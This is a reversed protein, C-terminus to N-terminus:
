QLLLLTGVEQQTITLVQDGVSLTATDSTTSDVGASTVICYYGNGTMSNQATLTLVTGTEGILLGATTEYWQFTIPPDGVAQCSFNVTEGNIATVSVPQRYIIPAPM